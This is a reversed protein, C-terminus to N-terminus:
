IFFTGTPFILSESHFIEGRSWYNAPITLTMCPLGDLLGCGGRRYLGRKERYGVVKRRMQERDLRSGLLLCRLSFNTWWSVSSLESTTPVHIM